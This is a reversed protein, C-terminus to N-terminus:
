ANGFQLFYILSTFFVVGLYNVMQKGKMRLPFYAYESSFIDKNGLDSESHSKRLKLGSESEWGALDDDRLSVVEM